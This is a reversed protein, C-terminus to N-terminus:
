KKGVKRGQLEKGFALKTTKEKKDFHNKEAL